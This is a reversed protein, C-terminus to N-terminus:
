SAAGETVQSAAAEKVAKVLAKVADRYAKVADISASRKEKFDAIDARPKEGNCDVPAVATQASVATQAVSKAASVQAVLDDYNAVSLEKKAYFAQVADSVKTIRDFANQRRSNMATMVRTITNIRNECLKKKNEDLRERLEEKKQESAQERVAEREKAQEQLKGRLETELRDAKRVETTPRPSPSVSSTKVEKSENDDMGGRATAISPTVLFLLAAGAVITRKLTQKM